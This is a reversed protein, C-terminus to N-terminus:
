LVKIIALYKSHLHIERTKFKKGPDWILVNRPGVLQRDPPYVVSSSMLQKHNKSFSPLDLFQMQTWLKNDHFMPLHSYRTLELLNSSFTCSIFIIGFISCIFWFFSIGWFIYIQKVKNKALRRSPLSGTIDSNNFNSFPIIM